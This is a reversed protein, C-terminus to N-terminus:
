LSCCEHHRIHITNRKEYEKPTHTSILDFYIFPFSGDSLGFQTFGSPVLLYSLQSTVNNAVHISRFHTQQLLLRREVTM